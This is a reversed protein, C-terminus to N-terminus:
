VTFRLWVTAEKKGLVYGSSAPHAPMFLDRDAEAGRRIRQDGDEDGSVWVGDSQYDGRLIASLSCTCGLSAAASLLRRPAWWLFM